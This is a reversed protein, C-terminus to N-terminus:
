KLMKVEVAPEKYVALFNFQKINNFSALTSLRSLLSGDAGLRLRQIPTCVRCPKGARNYVWAVGGYNGNIGQVNLFNSFTTGGAAISARLGSHHCNALAFDAGDAFKYLREPRVGSFCLKM